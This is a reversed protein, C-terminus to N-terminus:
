EIQMEKMKKNFKPKPYFMFILKHDRIISYNNTKIFKDNSMHPQSHM